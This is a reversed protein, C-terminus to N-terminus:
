ADPGRAPRTDNRAPELVERVYSERVTDDQRLMWIEGLRDADPRGLVEDAYSRRVASPQNLMWRQQPDRTLRAAARALPGPALLVIREDLAM